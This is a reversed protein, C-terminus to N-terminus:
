LSALPDLGNLMSDPLKELSTVSCYTGESYILPYQMTLAKTVNFVLTTTILEKSDARPCHKEEPRSERKILSQPFNQPLYLKLSSFTEDQTM